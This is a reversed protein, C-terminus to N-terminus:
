FLLQSGPWATFSVGDRTTDSILSRFAPLVHGAPMPHNVEDDFVKRGATNVEDETDVTGIDFVVLVGREETVVDGRHEGLM